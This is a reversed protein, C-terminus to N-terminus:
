LGTVTDCILGDLVKIGLAVSKFECSELTADSFISAGTVEVEEFFGQQIVARGFQLHDAKCRQISLSKFRSEIFEVQNLEVGVLDLSEFICRSFTLRNLNMKSISVLGMTCADFVTNSITKLDLIKQSFDAEFFHCNQVREWQVELLKWQPRLIRCDMLRGTWQGGEAFELADMLTNMFNVQNFRTQMFYCNLFFSKNIENKDFQNEIFRCNIFRSENLAIGQWTTKQFQCNSFCIQELVGQEFICNKFICAHFSVNMLSLQEFVQADFVQELVPGQELQQILLMTSTM